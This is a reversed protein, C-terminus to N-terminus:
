LDPEEDWGDPGPEGNEANTPARDIGPIGEIMEILQESSSLSNRLTLGMSGAESHVEMLTNQDGPSLSRFVNNAELLLTQINMLANLAKDPENLKESFESM